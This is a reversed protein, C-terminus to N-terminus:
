LVWFFHLNRFSCGFVEISRLLSSFEWVKISPGRRGPRMLCMTIERYLLLESKRYIHITHGFRGITKEMLDIKYSISQLCFVATNLIAFSIDKSFVSHPRKRSMYTCRKSCNARQDFNSCILKCVM